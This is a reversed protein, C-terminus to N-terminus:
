NVQYVGSSMVVFADNDIQQYQLVPENFNMLHEVTFDNLSVSSVSNTSKCCVFLKGKNASVSVPTAFSPKTQNGIRLDIRMKECNYRVLLNADPVTFWLDNGDSAISRIAKNNYSLKEAHLLEGQESFVGLEGGPYVVFVRGDALRQAECSIYDDLCDTIDAYSPGFKTMLYANKTVSAISQSKADYSYFSIKKQGDSANEKLVFLIGQQYALLDIVKQGVIKIMM